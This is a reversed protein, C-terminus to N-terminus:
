FFKVVSILGRVVGVGSCGGRRAHEGRVGRGVVQAAEGMVVGQVGERVALVVRPDLGLGLLALGPRALHERAHLGDRRAEVKPARM